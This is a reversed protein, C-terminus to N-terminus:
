RGIGAYKIHQKLFEIKDFMNRGDIVSARPALRRLDTASMSKICKHSTTAIILEADKITNEFTDTEIWGVKSVYPDYAVLNTYGITRIEDVIAKAPTNRMDSSDKKYALGLIAIKAGNPKGGLLMNAKRATYAPMEDNIKRATKILESTYGRKELEHMLFWPDDPLCHGGVGCGPSISYFNWKTSAAEIVKTVDAGLIDCIKAFENVLAINMDRQINELLKTLEAEKITPTEYVSPVIQGYICACACASADDIGSVVKPINEIRHEEDGPNVREPSYGLGFDHGARLGSVSELIKRFLGETTGPGVTSELIVLSGRKLNAGVARASSEIYDYVPGKTVPDAPTPVAVIIVDHIGSNEVDDSPYFTQSKRLVETIWVEGELYNERRKLSQIKADDIDYGYVNFGKKAFTMALPLGVYGLGILAISTKKHIIDKKFDSINTWSM